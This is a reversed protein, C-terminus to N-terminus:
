PALTDALLTSALAEEAEGTAGVGCSRAFVHPDLYWARSGAEAEAEAEVETLSRSHM